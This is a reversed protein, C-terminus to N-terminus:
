AESNASGTAVQSSNLHQCSSMLTFQTDTRVLGTPHLFSEFVTNIMTHINQTSDRELFTLTLRLLKQTEGAPNACRFISGIFNRIDLVPTDAWAEDQNVSHLDICRSRGFDSLCWWEGQNPLYYIVGNLNYRFCENRLPIKKYLVNGIHADGHVFNLKSHVTLLAFLVQFLMIKWRIDLQPTHSWEFCTGDMQQMYLYISTNTFNQVCTNAFRHGNHVHWHYMVPFHPCADHMKALETLMRIEMFPEADLRPLNSVRMFHTPRCALQTLPMCKIVCRYTPQKWFVIDSNRNALNYRRRPRGAFRRIRHLDRKVLMSVDNESLRCM